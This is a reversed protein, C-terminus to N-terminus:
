REAKNVNIVQGTVDSLLTAITAEAVWDANMLSGPDENGFNEIRMPTATREPNIANVAVHDSSLEEAAAQVLNVIAAKISSYSAYLARGRTYSSSTFLVISGSTQALYPAGFKIAYLSGFYNIEVEKKLDKVSRQVIKGTKLVAATCVIYDIRGCEDFIDSFAKQLALPDSVDVNSSRSLSYTTAGHETARAMISQGIGRSGGIVVMVAGALKSFDQHPVSISRMQFFKDAIFIDEPYTVKINDSTGHVLVVPALGYKIVIGCDDTFDTDHNEKMIAHARRLLGVKFGQPTLGRRLKSRDPIASIVAGDQTEVITDSCPVVVDIAEHKIVSAICDSITKSSILPRVADHLLIYDTDQQIAGVAAASSEQRTAGGIVIKSIKGFSNKLLLEEVYNRFEAAVVIIISDIDEHRDFASITHELITRGALKVYQKPIDGSFRAGSGGSLIAAHITAM